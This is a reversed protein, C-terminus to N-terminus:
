LRDIGDVRSIRGCDSRDSCSTPFISQALKPLACAMTPQNHGAAFIVSGRGYAIKAGARVTGSATEVADGDARQRAGGGRSTTRRAERVAEVLIEPLDLAVLESDRLEILEEGLDQLRHAERKRMSKSPKDYHFGDEDDRDAM